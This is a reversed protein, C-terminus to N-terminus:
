GASCRRLLRGDLRARDPDAGTEPRRCSGRGAAPASRRSRAPTASRVRDRRRDRASAALAPAGARASRCGSTPSARRAHRGRRARRHGRERLGDAPQGEGPRPQLARARRRRGRRDPRRDHRRRLRSTTIFFRRRFTSSSATSRRREEHASIAADITDYVSAATTPQIVDEIASLSTTGVQAGLKAAKLEPSPRRPRSRRQGGDVVVTQNGFYYGESLDANEAREENFTVQNIFFDFDKPGPAFSKNFPEPDLHGRGDTFGLQEAIAYPSRARSARAPRPTAGAGSGVARHQRWGSGPLLAPLGPQGHRDHAHRRTKTRPEGHRVRGADARRDRGPRPQSAQTPSASAPGSPATTAGGPGCAALLLSVVGLTVIRLRAM